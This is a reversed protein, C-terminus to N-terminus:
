CFKRGVLPLVLRSLRAFERRSSLLRLRLRDPFCQALLCVGLEVRFRLDSQSLDGAGALLARATYDASRERMGTLPLQLLPGQCSMTSHCGLPGPKSTRATNRAALLAGHEVCVYALLARNWEACIRM